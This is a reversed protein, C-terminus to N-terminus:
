FNNHILLIKCIHCVRMSERERVCLRCHLPLGFNLVLSSQPLNPLDTVTYVTQTPIRSPLLTRLLWFTDLWFSPSWLTVLSNSDDITSVFVTRDSSTFYVMVLVRGYPLPRNTGQPPHRDTVPHSYFHTLSFM